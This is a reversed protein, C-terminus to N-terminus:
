HRHPQRPRRAEIRVGADAAPRIVSRAPLIQAAADVGGYIVTEPGVVLGPGLTTHAGVHVRDGIVAGLKATRCTYTTGDALRVIVPRAPYRMDEEWLGVSAVVIGASLHVRAGIVSWSAAIRHALTAHEGILCRAVECGHGITVGRSLVSGDRVTSYEHVRVGPGIIVDDGICASPHIRATPHIRSSTGALAAGHLKAYVGGFDAIDASALEAFGWSCLVPDAALHVYDGVRLVLRVEAPEPRPPQPHEFPLATM